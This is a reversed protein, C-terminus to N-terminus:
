YTWSIRNFSGKKLKNLETRMEKDHVEFTLKNGFVNRFFYKIGLRYYKEYEGSTKTENSWEISTSTTHGVTEYTQGGDESIEVRAM